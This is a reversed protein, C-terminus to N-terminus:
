QNFLEDRKQKSTQPNNGTYNLIMTDHAKMFQTATTADRNFLTLKAIERTMSVMEKL